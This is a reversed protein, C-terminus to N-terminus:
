DKGRQVVSLVFKLPSPFSIYTTIQPLYVCWSNRVHLALPITAPTQRCTVATVLGPLAATRHMHHM